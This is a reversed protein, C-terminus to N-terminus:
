KRPLRIRMRPTRRIRDSQRNTLSRVDRPGASLREIRPSGESISSLQLSIEGFQTILMVQIPLGVSIGGRLLGNAFRSVFPQASLLFLTRRDVHTNPFPSLPGEAFPQALFAAKADPHGIMAWQSSEEYPTPGLKHDVRLIRADGGPAVAGVLIDVHRSKQYFQNAAKRLREAIIPFSIPRASKILRQAYGLTREGTVVDGSFAAWVQSALPFLKAGDDWYSGDPFSFRSDTM